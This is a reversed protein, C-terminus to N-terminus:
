VFLIRHVIEIETCFIYQLIITNFFLYFFLHLAEVKIEQIRHINRTFIWNRTLLVSHLEIHSFEHM